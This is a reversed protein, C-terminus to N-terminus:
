PKGKKNAWLSGLGDPLFRIVLLLFLGLALQWTNPFYASSFSRVMELVVSSLMVALVSQSGALIAVFVFEGSTTWYSFNPDIHGLAMVALAGGMGGLFAALSFNIAMTNAVSAGLYEVRLENDRIAQTVLGRTSSFYLKALVGSVLAFGWTVSLLVTSVQEDALAQGLLTVRGMNFGDSGGLSDTKVLVGYGVMSMALTLMSFFIGRYRALLPGFPATILCAVLGGLLPLLLADQWGWHLFVLAAAYGGLASMLGQGFAVVGGRMLLVIGLSVLGNALAMTFMFQLWRPLFAGALWGLLLVGVSAMWLRQM